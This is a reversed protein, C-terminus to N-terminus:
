SKLTVWILLITLWLIDLTWTCYQEYMKIKVLLGLVPLPKAECRIKKNMFWVFSSQVTLFSPTGAILCHPCISIAWSYHVESKSLKKHLEKRNWLKILDNLQLHYIVAVMFGVTTVTPENFVAYVFNLIIVTLCPTTETRIEVMATACETHCM